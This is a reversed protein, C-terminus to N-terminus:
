HLINSDDIVKDFKLDPTIMQLRYSTNTMSKTVQQM